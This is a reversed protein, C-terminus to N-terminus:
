SNHTPFEHEENHHDENFNQKGEESIISAMSMEGMFVYFPECDSNEIYEVIIIFPPSSSSSTSHIMVGHVKNSPYKLVLKQTIQEIHSAENLKMKVFKGLVFGGM